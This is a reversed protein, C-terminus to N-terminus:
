LQGAEEPLAEPAVRVRTHKGAQVGRVGVELLVKRGKGERGLGGLYGVRGQTIVVGPVPLNAVELDLQTGDLLVQRFCLLLDELQCATTPALAGPLRYDNVVVVVRIDDCVDLPQWLYSCLSLHLTTGLLALVHTESPLNLGLSRARCKSPM